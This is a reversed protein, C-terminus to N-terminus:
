HNGVGVDEDHPGLPDAGLHDVRKADKCPDNGALIRPIPIRGEIPGSRDLADILLDARWQDDKTAPNGV